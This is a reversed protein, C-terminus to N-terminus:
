CFSNVLEGLSLDPYNSRHKKMAGFTKEILNLDPSYPALFLLVAGTAEVLERTKKSKHFIADDLVMATKDTLM